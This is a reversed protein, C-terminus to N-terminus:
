RKENGKEHRTLMDRIFDYTAFEIGTQPAARTANALLGRYFGRWGQTQLIYKACDVPGDYLGKQMGLAGSVQMRRRVTDVPYMLSQSSIASISGLLVNGLLSKNELGLPDIGKLTDYLTLSIALYPIIGVLSVGLGKYLGRVGEWEVTKVMLDFLGKYRPNTSLDATLRTRALDMPYVPILTSAGSLGGCAMKRLFLEKPRDKFEGEGDPMAIRKYTDFTSFKIASNPVIRAVNVGNGRWFALVGQERPVRRLVDFVGKYRKTRLAKKTVDQVQLIIKVRELPATLTRSIAGAGGGAVLQRGFNKTM